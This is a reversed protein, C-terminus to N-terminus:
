ELTIHAARLIPEWKAVEAHMFAEFEGPTTGLPVAGLTKLREQVMSDHVAAVFDRNLEAVLDPKLGAPGLVGWWVSSDYGPVGAEAVTPVDPLAPSRKATTVALARLTGSEIQGVVEALPNISLQVEGGLVATVSPAGGRYPVAVLKVGALANLLEGSLHASTGNGSTGYSLTGPKERALALLDKLTKAPSDKNVVIALPSYGIQTIATFDKFTDYPVKPYFFQNLVHGTAAIMLTYGDPASRVLAQSAVIGGAGPRNEVVPQQGWKQALSQGLVRALVDIAGGPAYPVYLHVPRTPFDEARASAAALALALLALSIRAFAIM